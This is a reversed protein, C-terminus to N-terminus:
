ESEEERDEFEEQPLQNRRQDRRNLPQRSEKMEDATNLASATATTCYNNENDSFSENSDFNSLGASLLQRDSKRARKKDDDIADDSSRRKAYPTPANNSTPLPPPTPPLAQPRVIAKKGTVLAGSTANVQSEGQEQQRQQGIVGQIETLEKQKNFRNSLVQMDEERQKRIDEKIKNENSSQILAAVKARVNRDTNCKNLLLNSSSMAGVKAQEDKGKQSDQLLKSIPAAMGFPAKPVLAEGKKKEFLKMREKLSLETPDKQPTQVNQTQTEFLATRGSVLGPKVTAMEKNEAPQNLKKEYLQKGFKNINVKDCETRAVKEKAINLPKEQIDEQLDPQRQAELSNIGEDKDKLKRTNDIQKNTTTSDPAISKMRGRSPLDPKPPPLSSSKGSAKINHHTIDDEWQNISDALAVLKNLKRKPKTCATEKGEDTDAHFQGETRHIPSSLDGTNSYLVGLRQLCKRPTNRNKFASISTQDIRERQQQAGDAQKSTTRVQAELTQEEDATTMDQKEVQVQVDVHKDTVINIEIGLDMNEKDVATFQRLITKPTCDANPSGRIGAVNTESYEEEIVQLRNINEDSDSHVATCLRKKQKQQKRQQLDAAVAMTEACVDSQTNCSVEPLYSSIDVASAAGLARRRKEAKELMQQTFSDM